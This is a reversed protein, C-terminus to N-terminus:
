KSAIVHCTLINCNLFRKGNKNTIFMEGSILVRDGKAVNSLNFNWMTCEVYTNEKRKPSHDLVTFSKGKRDKGNNDKFDFERIDSVIIGDINANIM